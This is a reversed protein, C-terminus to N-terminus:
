EIIPEIGRQKSRFCVLKKRYLRAFRTQVIGRQRAVLYNMSSFYGLNQFCKILVVYNLLYKKNKVNSHAYVLESKSPTYKETLLKQPINNRFRPYTTREISTM